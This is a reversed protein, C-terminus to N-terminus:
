ISCSEKSIGSSHKVSLSHMFVAIGQMIMALEIEVPNQLLRLVYSTVSIYTSKPLLIQKDAKARRM